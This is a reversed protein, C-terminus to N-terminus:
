SLRQKFSKRNFFILIATWFAINFFSATIIGATLNVDLATANEISILGRIPDIFEAINKIIFGISGYLLWFSARSNLTWAYAAGTFIFVSSIIGIIGVLFGFVTTESDIGTAKGLLYDISLFGWWCFLSITIIFLLILIVTLLWGREKSNGM